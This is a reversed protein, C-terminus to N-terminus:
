AFYGTDPVEGGVYSSICQQSSGDCFTGEPCSQGSGNPSSCLYATNSDPRYTSDGGQKPISPVAFDQFGSVYHPEMKDIFRVVIPLLVVAAVLFLLMAGLGMAKSQNM